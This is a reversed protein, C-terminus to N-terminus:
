SKRSRGMKKLKKKIKNKYLQRKLSSVRDIFLIGNLHDVEHQLVIALQGDAQMDVSKGNRDMGTVRIKEARKVDARFGEPVSLCGEKESMITGQSLVIEPNILFQPSRKQEEQTVDYVIIRKDVGVQPGALGVGSGDYMTEAMDSILNHIASDVKEVPIAPERLFKDPYTFIKLIAMPVESLGKFTLKFNVILLINFTLVDPNQHSKIIIESGQVQVLASM